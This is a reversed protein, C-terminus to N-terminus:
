PLREDAWEEFLFVRARLAPDKPIISRAPYKEDLYCAIATSDAVVKEGDQIIPVGIQGSLRKLERRDFPDVIREEFAIGKYRLISRVKAAYPSVKYSFLTVM